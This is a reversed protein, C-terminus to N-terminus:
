LVLIRGKKVFLVAMLAGMFALGASIRLIVRYVEIFGERYATEVQAAAGGDGGSAWTQVARSGVGGGSSGADGNMAAPGSGRKVEEPVKADGLKVTEAMVLQRDRADLGMADVQRGVAGAFLVVALAGFIANAFVGAVRSLANNVGSAVGSFQSGVAGMVASTLPVVTLAMGLGFVVIGPFFSYWYDSLRRVQGVMSLLIMGVGAVVPGAILLARPGHRDAWGGVYRSLSILLLTFPLFSLGAQLQSYGQIQVMNLSLFLFVAGLGAYLFFTLANVGSFVPNRFLSLPIMPDKSRVEIRVFALLFIVGGALAALVSWNGLGVAPIRLCGWTELALGVAVVVAGKIDLSHLEGEGAAAAEASASRSEPVKRWLILLSALGLPVNVFFIDRWLGADALAGGLIPGGVTVTTTLASWTGIAKGREEDAILASLLSLSGPIMLAGGAGQIVRCGILMGMSVSCGCAVSGILFVVIGITYVRKRGLRDGLVGGILILSALMLLYANLIWFLETGNGQLSQQLSPLVVNLATADIFAMSSALVAAVM